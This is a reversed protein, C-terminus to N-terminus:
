ADSSAAARTSRGTLWPAFLALTVAAGAVTSFLFARGPSVGQIAISMALLGLIGGLAAVNARRGGVAADDRLRHRAALLVAGFGLTLGVIELAGMALGAAHFGEGSLIRPPIAIAGIVVLLTPVFRLLAGRVIESAAVM